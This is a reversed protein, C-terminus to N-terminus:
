AGCIGTLTEEAAGAAEGATDATANDMDKALVTLADKLQQNNATKGLNEFKTKYEKSLPVVENLVKEMEAEDTKQVARALIEAIKKKYEEGLAKADTCVQKTNDATGTSSAAPPASDNGGSSGDCGAGFLVASAFIATLILKRM